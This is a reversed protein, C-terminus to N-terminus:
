EPVLLALRLTVFKREAVAERPFFGSLLDRVLDRVTVAEMDSDKSREPDFLKDVGRVVVVVKEIDHDSVCVDDLVAVRSEDCELLGDSDNDAVSEEANDVVNYVFEMLIVAVSESVIDADAESVGLLLIRESVPEETRLVVADSVGECEADAELVTLLASPDLVADVLRDLDLVDTSVGLL